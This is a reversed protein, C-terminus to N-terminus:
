SFLKVIYAIAVPSVVAGVQPLITLLVKRASDGSVLATGLIITPGTMGLAASEFLMVHEEGVEELSEVNRMGLATGAVLASSAASCFTAAEVHPEFAFLGPLVNVKRTFQYILVFTIGLGLTAISLIARVTKKHPVLYGSVMIAVTCPLCIGLASTQFLHYKVEYAQILYNGRYVFTYVLAGITAGAGGFFSLWKMINRLM